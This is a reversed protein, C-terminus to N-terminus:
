KEVIKEVRTFEENILKSFDEDIIVWERDPHSKELTHLIHTEMRGANKKNDYERIGILFIDATPHYTTVMRERLRWGMSTGIKAHRDDSYWRWAYVVYRDIDIEYKRAFILNRRVIYVNQNSVGLREALEPNSKYPEKEPDNDDKTLNMKRLADRVKQEKGNSM